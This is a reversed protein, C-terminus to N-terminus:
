RDSSLRIPQLISFRRNKTASICSGITHIRRIRSFRILDGLHRLINRLRDISFWRWWRAFRDPSDNWTGSVFISFIGRLHIVTIIYRRMRAFMDLPMSVIGLFFWSITNEFFEREMVFGIHWHSIVFGRRSSPNGSLLWRGKSDSNGRISVGKQSFDLFWTPVLHNRWLHWSDNGEEVISSHIMSFPSALNKQILIKCASLISKESMFDICLYPFYSFTHYDQTTLFSFQFFPPFFISNLWYIKM